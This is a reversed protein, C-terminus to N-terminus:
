VLVGQGLPPRLITNMVQQFTYQASVLPFLRVKCKLKQTIRRCHPQMRVRWRRENSWSTVMEQIWSQSSNYCITLPPVSTSSTLPYLSPVHVPVLIHIPTYPVLIGWTLVQYYLFILFSLYPLFYVVPQMVFTFSHFSKKL